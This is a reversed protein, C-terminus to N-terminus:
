FKSLFYEDLAPAREALYGLPARTIECTFGSTKLLGVYFQSQSVTDHKNPMQYSLFPNGQIKYTM